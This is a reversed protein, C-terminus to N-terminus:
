SKVHGSKRESRWLCDHLFDCAKLLPQCAQLFLSGAQDLAATLAHLAPQSLLDLGVLLAGSVAVRGDAAGCVSHTLLIYLSSSSTPPLIFHM